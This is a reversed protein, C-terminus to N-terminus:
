GAEASVPVDTPFCRPERRELVRQRVAGGLWESCPGGSGKWSACGWSQLWDQSGLPEGWMYSQRVCVHGEQKGGM